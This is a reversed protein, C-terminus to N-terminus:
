PGLKFDKGLYFYNLGRGYNNPPVKTLARGRNEWFCCKRRCKVLCIWSSTHSVLEWRSNPLDRIFGGCVPASGQFLPIQPRPFSKLEQFPSNSPLKLPKPSSPLQGCCHRYGRSDPDTCARSIMFHRCTAFINKNDSTVLIMYKVGQLGWISIHACQGNHKSNKLSITTIRHYQQKISLIQHHMWSCHLADRNCGFARTCQPSTGEVKRFSTVACWTCACACHACACADRNCSLALCHMAIFDIRGKSGSYCGSDPDAWRLEHCWLIIFHHGLAGALALSHM